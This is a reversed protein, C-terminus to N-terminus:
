EVGVVIVTQPLASLDDFRGKRWYVSLRQRIMETPSLAAGVLRNYNDMESSIRLAAYGPRPISNAVVGLIKRKGKDDIHGVAVQFDKNENVHKFHLSSPTAAKSLIKGGQLLVFVTAIIPPATKTTM